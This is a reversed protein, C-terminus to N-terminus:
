HVKEVYENVRKSLADVVRTLMNASWIVRVTGGCAQASAQSVIAVNASVEAAKSAVEDINHSIERTAAEQEQVAGAIASAIEDLKRIIDVVSSIGSAAERAAEQVGSVQRSIDETARATQNALHKVENAVVAFGKGAEGARAAEITANLALLNTQAAIDNILQVVVEIQQVKEALGDMRASTVDIDQVAQRSVQTSQAVQQAIENIAEALQRTVESVAVARESTIQAADGVSLSRGGAKESRTAMLNATQGIGVTSQAVESVMEHISQEFLITEQDRAEMDGLVKNIHRVFELFDGRFGTEPINRYYQKQGALKMAAGTDKAFSETLDLVRNIGILLDSMPHSRDIRTIRANLDGKAARAVADKARDLMGATRELRARLRLAQIIGGLGLAIVAAEGVWFLLGSISFLAAAAIATLAALALSLHLSALRANFFRQTQM